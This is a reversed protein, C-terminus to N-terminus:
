TVDASRTVETRVGCIPCGWRVELEEPVHGIGHAGCAPCHWEINAPPRAAAAAALTNLQEHEHEVRHATLQENVERQTRNIARQTRITFLVIGLIVLQLV